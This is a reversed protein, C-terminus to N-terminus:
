SMLMLKETVNVSWIVKEDDRLKMLDAQLDAGAEVLRDWTFDNDLRIGHEFSFTRIPVKWSAIIDAWKDQYLGWQKM